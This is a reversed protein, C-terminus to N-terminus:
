ELVLSWSHGSILWLYNRELQGQETHASLETHTQNESRSNYQSPCQLSKYSTLDFGLPQLLHFRPLKTEARFPTKTTPQGQQLIFGSNTYDANNSLMTTYIKRYGESTCFPFVEVLPTDLPIWRWLLPKRKASPLACTLHPCLQGELPNQPKTRTRQRQCPSTHGFLHSTCIWQETGPKGLTRQEQPQTPRQHRATFLLWVLFSCGPLFQGQPKKREPHILTSLVLSHNKLGLLLSDQTTTAEQGAPITHQHHCLSAPSLVKNGKVM